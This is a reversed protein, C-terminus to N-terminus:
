VGHGETTTTSAPPIYSLICSGETIRGSPDLYDPLADSGNIYDPTEVYNKDHESVPANFDSTYNCYGLMMRVDEISIGPLGSGVKFGGADYTMGFAYPNPAMHGSYISSDTLYKGDIMIYIRGSSARCVAIHHRLGDCLYAATVVHSVLLTLIGSTNAPIMELCFGMVSQALMATEIDGSFFGTYATPTNTLRLTMGSKEFLRQNYGPSPIGPVTIFFDFIFPDDQAISFDALGIADPSATVPANYRDFCHDDEEGNILVPYWYNDFVMDEIDRVDLAMITNLNFANPDDDTTFHFWIRIVEGPLIKDILYSYNNETASSYNYANIKRWPIFGQMYHVVFSNTPEIYPAM